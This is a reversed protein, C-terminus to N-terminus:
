PTSKMQRVPYRSTLSASSNAILTFNSMHTFAESLLSESTDRVIECYFPRRWPLRTSHILITMGDDQFDWSGKRIRRKLGKRRGDMWSRRRGRKPKRKKKPKRTKRWSLRERRMEEEMKVNWGLSQREGPQAVDGACGKRNENRHSSMLM